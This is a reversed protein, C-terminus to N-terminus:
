AFGVVGNHAVETPFLLMEDACIVSVVVGKVAVPPVIVVFPDYVM